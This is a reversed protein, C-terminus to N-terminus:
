PGYQSDRRWEKQDRLQASPLIGFHKHMPLDIDLILEVPLELPPFISFLQTLM